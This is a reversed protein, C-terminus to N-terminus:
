SSSAEIKIFFYLLHKHLIDLGKQKEKSFLTSDLENIFQVASIFINQLAIENKLLVCRVLPLFVLFAYPYLFYSISADNGFFAVAYEYSYSSFAVAHFRCRLATTFLFPSPANFLDFLGCGFAPSDDPRM